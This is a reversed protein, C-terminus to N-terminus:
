RGRGYRMRPKCLWMAKTACNRAWLRDDDENKGWNSSISGSGGYSQSMTLAADIYGVFLAIAVRQIRDITEETSTLTGQSYVIESRIFDDMKKSIKATHIKENITFNYRCIVEIQASPSQSSKSNSNGVSENTISIDNRAYFSDSLTLPKSVSQKVPVHELIPHLEKWITKLKSPM